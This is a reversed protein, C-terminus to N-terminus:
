FEYTENFCFQIQYLETYGCTVSSRLFNDECEKELDQPFSGILITKVIKRSFRFLMICAM